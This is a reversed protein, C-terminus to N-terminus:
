RRSATWKETFFITLPNRSGDDGQPRVTSYKCFACTDCHPTSFSCFLYPGRIAEDTLPGKALDQQPCRFNCPQQTTPPYTPKPYTPSPNSYPSTWPSPSPNAYPSDWPSSSPSYWDSTSSPTDRKPVLSPSGRREWEFDHSPVEGEKDGHDDHGGRRVVAQKFERGNRGVCKQVATKPCYSDGVSVGTTQAVNNTPSPLFIIPSHFKRCQVHVVQVVERHLLM